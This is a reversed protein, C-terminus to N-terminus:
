KQLWPASAVPQNASGMGNAEFASNSGLNSRPTHHQPAAPAAPTYTMPLYNNVNERDGKVVVDAIFKDGILADMDNISDRGISILMRALDRKSLNVAVENPHDLNFRCTLWKGQRPGECITTNVQLYHGTGANNPKYEVATIETPYKGPELLGFDPGSDELFDPVDAAISFSFSM